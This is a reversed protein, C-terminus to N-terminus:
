CVVKPAETKIIRAIAKQGQREEGKRLETIDRTPRKIVNVLGLRYVANFREKYIRALTHENRLADEPEKLLGARALLYWFMKNNSFPVGRSFSGFHPNIGVFLIKANKYRYRIM